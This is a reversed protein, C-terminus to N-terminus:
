QLQRIQEVSLSLPSFRLIGESAKKEDAREMRWGEMRWGGDSPVPM